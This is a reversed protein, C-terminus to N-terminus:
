RNKRTKMTRGPAPLLNRSFAFSGPPFLKYNRLNVGNLDAKTPFMSKDTGVGMVDSEGYLGDTNRLDSHEILGKLCRKNLGM